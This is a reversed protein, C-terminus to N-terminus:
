RRRSLRYGVGFITKLTDSGLTLKQRLRRIHVDVTRTDGAYSYGWVLNLLHERTFVRGIHEMFLCLLEYEKPTLSVEAGNKTVIRGRKDVEIDIYCLTDGQAKQDHEPYMRRLTSHIRAMVERFDFPKTIYDDAGSELGTVKDDIDAKATIIIIPLNYTKTLTRCIDMGSMDPLMLDLLVLSPKFAEMLALASHGDHAMQIVFGESKLKYQLLKAISIEDEVILIRNHETLENREGQM